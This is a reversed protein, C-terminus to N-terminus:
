KEFQHMHRPNFNHLEHEYNDTLAYYDTKTPQANEVYFSKKEEQYKYLHDESLTYFGELIDRFQKTM